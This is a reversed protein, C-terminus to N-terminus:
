RGVGESGPSMDFRSDAVAREPLYNMMLIESKEDDHAHGRRIRPGLSPRM